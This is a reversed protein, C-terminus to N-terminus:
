GKAHSAAVEAARKLGEVTTTFGGTPRASAATKVAAEEATLAVVAPSAPTVSGKQITFIGQNGGLPIWFTPVTTIGPHEGTTLQELYLAYQQGVVLETTGDMSTKSTDINGVVITDGASVGSTAERKIIGSVRVNLFVMPECDEGSGGEREAGDPTPERSTTPATTDPAPNPTWADSPNTTLVGQPDGGKDCEKTEVGIVTGTIAADSASTLEEASPYQMYDASAHELSSGAACGTVAVAAVAVGAVWTRKFM